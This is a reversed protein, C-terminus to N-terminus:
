LFKTVWIANLRKLDSLGQMFNKYIKSVLISQLALILLVEQMKDDIVRYIISKKSLHHLKIALIANLMYLYNLSRM